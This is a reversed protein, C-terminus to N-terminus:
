QITFGFSLNNDVCDELSAHVECGRAGEPEKGCREALTLYVVERVFRDGGRAILGGSSHDLPKPLPDVPPANSGIAQTLNCM